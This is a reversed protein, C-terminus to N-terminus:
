LFHRAHAADVVQVHPLYALTDVGETAVYNHVVLCDASASGHKGSHILQKLILETYSV